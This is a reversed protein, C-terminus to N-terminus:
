VVRKVQAGLSALKEEIRDYGRDIHEVERIETEGEAVLGALLLAAGGRIDRPSEVPAGTLKEVGRVIITDRDVQLDAGMRRLEDAYGFRNEFRTETIASVGAARAMMAVFQPQLDTPFGPYALTEVNVAKCREPGRVRLMSQHEEVEAGAAVLEIIVTRMHEPV